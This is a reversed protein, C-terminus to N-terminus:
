PPLAAGGKKKCYPVEGYRGCYIEEQVGSKELRFLYVKVVKQIKIIMDCISQVHETYYM